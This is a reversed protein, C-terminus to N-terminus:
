QNLKKGILDHLPEYGMEQLEEGNVFFTPTRNVGLKQGDQYDKEIINNFRGNRADTEIKTTDLGLPKILKFMLEPKPDHHSAWEHQQEFLLALAEWYKGQERAGELVNAALGSNQHFPMYRVVLRIKGPYDAIVKKVIPYMAACAECEPDLFEVLTIPADSPGLTPAHFALLLSNDKPVVSFNSETTATNSTTASSSPKNANLFWFTGVLAVIIGVAAIKIKNNM